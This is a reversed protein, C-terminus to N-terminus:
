PGSSVLTVVPKQNESHAVDNYGAVICRNRGARKAEYLAQDARKVVQEYDSRGDHLAAGVSTTVTIADGNELLFKHEAIAMRVKEAVQRLRMEDVDGLVTLFEEGGYRFAFDSARITQMLIEAFMRLVGDGGEHGYRDNISKFHDIDLLLIGYHIGHAMGLTSEHKVITSLYRRNFLRTLPDRGRELVLVNDILAQLVWAGRTVADSLSEIAARLRNRGRKVCALAHARDVDRVIAALRSREEPDHFIIDGKHTVWFGFDSRGLTAGAEVSRADNAYLDIVARRLWDFLFSRWSELETVLAYPEIHMRMSKMHREYTAIESIYTDNIRSAAHDLLDNMCIVARALDARGIDSATLVEGIERRLVRMGEVVLHLPVNIRAHVRGIAYQQELFEAIEAETRPLFMREIWTVLSKTLRGAILESDLFTDSDPHAILEAYFVNVIRQIHPRVVIEARDLIARDAGMFIESLRSDAINSTPSKAANMSINRNEPFRSDLREAQSPRNGGIKM